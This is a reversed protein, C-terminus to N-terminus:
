TPNPIRFIGKGCIYDPPPGKKGVEFRGRLTRLVMVNDRELCGLAGPLKDAKKSASLQDQLKRFVADLPKLQGIASM